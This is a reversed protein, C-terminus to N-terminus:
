PKPLRSRLAAILGAPDDVHIHLRDGGLPIGFVGSMSVRRKLEVRVNPDPHPSIRIAREADRAGEDEPRGTLDEVRM